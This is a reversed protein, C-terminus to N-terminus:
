KKTSSLYTHKQGLQALSRISPLFEIPNVPIKNKLLEFHLHVGSARGTRGMKGILQGQTLEQGTRIHINNLHAYLTSWAKTHQILVMKGYGRFRSGAYIVVGKEVTIIKTKFPGSLDIGDHAPNKPPAFKQTLRASDLPWIPNFHLSLGSGETKYNKLFPKPDRWAGKFPTTCSILLLFLLNILM